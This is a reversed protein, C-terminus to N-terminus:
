IKLNQILERALAVDVSLIIKSCKKKKKKNDSKWFKEQM